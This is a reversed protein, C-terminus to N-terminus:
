PTGGPTPTPAASGASAGNDGTTAERIQLASAAPLTLEKVSATSVRVGFSNRLTALYTGGGGSAFAAPLTAPDGIARLVYPRTLPRYDVLIADGAFRIASLATLRQGNVAVAEAGAQWLSNAVIQVDRAIVKGTNDSTTRPNGDASNPDSTAADDLTVEFGPGRVSSGGVITTLRQLQQAKTRDLGALVQADLESVEAQLAAVQHSQRDVQARRSDIQTILDARAKTAATEKTRLSVSATSLLLGLVLTAIVLPVSRLSTAPPLGSAERRAAAAAYGPDLPREIMSTLLTM